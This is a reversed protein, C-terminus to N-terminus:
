FWTSWFSDMWDLMGDKDLSLHYTGYQKCFKSLEEHYAKKATILANYANEVKKAAEKRDNSKQLAEAKKREQEVEFDKEAKECDELTEYFKRTKDSYFRM